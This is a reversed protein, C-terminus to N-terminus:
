YVAAGLRTPGRRLQLHPVASPRPQERVNSREGESANPPPPLRSAGNADAGETAHRCLLDPERPARKEISAPDIPMQSLEIFRRFADIEAIGKTAESRMTM